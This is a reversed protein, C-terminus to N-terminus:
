LLFFCSDVVSTWCHTFILLSSRVPCLFCGLCKYLFVLSSSVFFLHTFPVHTVRTRGGILLFSYFHFFLSFCCVFSGSTGTFPPLHPLCTCLLFAHGVRRKHGHFLLFMLLSSFFSPPIVQVLLQWPSHASSHHRCHHHHYHDSPCLSVGPLGEVDYTAMVNSSSSRMAEGALGGSGVAAGM